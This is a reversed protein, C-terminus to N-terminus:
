LADLGDNFISTFANMKPKLLSLGVEVGGDPEGGGVLSIGGTDTDSSVFEFRIPKGWGVDLDYYNFRPSGAM